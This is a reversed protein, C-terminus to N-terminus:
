ELSIYSGYYHNKGPKKKQVNLSLEERWSM